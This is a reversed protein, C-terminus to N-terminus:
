SSSCAQHNAVDAVGEGTRESRGKNMWARASGLYWAKMVGSKAPKNDQRQGSFIRLASAVYKISGPPCDQTVAGLRPEATLSGLAGSPLLIARLM